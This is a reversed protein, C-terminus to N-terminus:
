VLKTVALKTEPDIDKNFELDKNLEVLHDKENFVIVDTRKLNDSCTLKNRYVYWGYQQYGLINDIDEGDYDSITYRSVVKPRWIKAPVKIM